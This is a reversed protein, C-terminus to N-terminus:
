LPPDVVLRRTAWRAFLPGAVAATPLGIIAGWLLVLGTNAKLAEIAIVPGPHPPMLGHMVSLCSLLPLALLLFPRGSERTLTVLIPALLFLGVAFWTTLGLLLLLGVSGVAWLLLTGSHASM